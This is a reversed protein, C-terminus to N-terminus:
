PRRSSHRWESMSTSDQEGARDPRRVLPEQVGEQVREPVEAQRDPMVHALHVFAGAEVRVIGLEQERQGVGPRNGAVRRQEVTRRRPRRLRSAAVRVSSASFVSM